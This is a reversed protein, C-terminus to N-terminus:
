QIAQRRGRAAHVYFEPAPGLVVIGNRKTALWWPDKDRELRALDDASLAVISASFRLDREASSIAERMSVALGPGARASGAVAVDVDSDPRDEGRAVSGYIWAADAGAATAATRVAEMIRHYRESETNFLAALSPGLCGDSDFRYLRQRAEGLTEVAGGEVLQKLASLVSPKTLHTAVVLNSASLTGGHRALARLVRVNAPSDFVVNLPNRIHSQPTPKM